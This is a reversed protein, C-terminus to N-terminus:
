PQKVVATPVAWEVATASSWMGKSGRHGETDETTLLIQIGAKAPIVCDANMLPEWTM